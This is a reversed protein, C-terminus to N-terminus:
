EALLETGQMLVDALIPCKSLVEEIFVLLHVPLEEVLEVFSLIVVDPDEFLLLLTTSPFYRYYM